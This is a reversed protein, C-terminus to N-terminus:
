LYVICGYWAFKLVPVSLNDVQIPPLVPCQCTTWKFRLYLLATVRQGDADSSWCPVSVGQGATDSSSCPVSLNDMQIPPLVPCQCTTWKFRLYLLASVSQGDADSSWCPVSVGQGATDSSSCPVSLNDMQLHIYSDCNQNNDM